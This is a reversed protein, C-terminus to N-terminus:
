TAGSSCTCSTLFVGLVQFNASGIPPNQDASSYSCRLHNWVSHASSYIWRSTHATVSLTASNTIRQSSEVSAEWTSYWYSRLSFCAAFFVLWFITIRKWTTILNRFSWETSYATKDTMSAVWQWNCITIQLIEANAGIQSDDITTMYCICKTQCFFAWRVCHRMLM